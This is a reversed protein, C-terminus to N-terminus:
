PAGDMWVQDLRYPWIPHLGPGRVWPQRLAYLQPHLLFVWPADAVVQREVRRYLALREEPHASGSAADLLRDVEPNRYFARNNCNEDVIRQGNLLTDLFNSPDPFDQYWRSLACPANRRRTVGDLFTAMTVPKLEIRIGVRALDEQLAEGLRSDRQDNATMWLTTQFGDPLGAQALLARAQEPNYDYGPLEPDFGPMGPPLVGRAPTARGNLLRVLRRTDVAHNMARRVLPRDFPPLETNMAVYFTAGEPMQHIMPQLRPDRLVRPFDPIPIGNPSLILDLEGREFMMQHLTEDGGISLVIADPYGGTDGARLPKRRFKLRVGRRWEELAYPGSGTPLELFGGGGPMLAEHPVAFAFPMALLYPFSLDPRELEIELRDSSPARLGRVGAATGAQFEKAGAIGRFFGEGPSLTSPRLVRELSRVYDAAEVPRGSAFRADDRLHFSLTRGDPSISWERCQWPVLDLGQGYDLLGRFMLRMICWSEPEYGIAPDLSRLDNPLALRLTGGRQPSPTHDPAEVGLGSVPCLLTVLLAWLWPM